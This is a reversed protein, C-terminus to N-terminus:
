GANITKAIVEIRHLYMHNLDIWCNNQALM